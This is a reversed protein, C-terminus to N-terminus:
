ATAPAPPPSSVPVAARPTSRAAVWLAGLGVITTVFWAVGGLFPVLAVLRLAGWGALFAVYRSRPEKVVMRGLAIAGVVYGTTYVLGLAFLLFLALPITVVAVFLLVCVVPLLFFTLAGFGFVGGLRRDLAAATAVDIGRAMKLLVLGLVLTSVSYGIWWAIKGAFGWEPWDFRRAVGQVDGRVTAGDEIVPSQRSVVDGEIIAGSRIVVRGNFSVVDEVVSGTVEVRGNFVVLSELVTGEILADGNFIVATEVIQGEPVFLSGTLVVLDDTKPGDGASDQALAGPVLMAFVGVFAAASLLIIVPRRFSRSM